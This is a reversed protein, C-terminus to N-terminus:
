LQIKPQAFILVEFYRNNRISNLGAMANLYAVIFGLFDLPKLPCLWHPLCSPMGGDLSSSFSFIFFFFLIFVFFFSGKIGRKHVGREDGELSDGM